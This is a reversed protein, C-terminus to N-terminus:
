PMSAGGLGPPDTWWAPGATASRYGIEYLETMKVPDFVEDGTIEVGGPITTWRYGAEERRTVAYIRFLDGVAAAKGSTDFVRMAISRLSRTTPEPTPLLQGNHIVYVDERAAGRGAAASV